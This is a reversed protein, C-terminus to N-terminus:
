FSYVVSKLPSNKVYVAGGGWVPTKSGLPLRYLGVYCVLNIYLILQLMDKVLYLKKFTDNKSSGGSEYYLEM